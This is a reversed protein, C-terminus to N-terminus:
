PASSITLRFRGDTVNFGPGSCTFSGYVETATTSVFISGSTAGVNTESEPSYVATRNTFVAAEPIVYRFTGPQANPVRFVLGRPFSGGGSTLLASVTLNINSATVVAQFINDSAANASARFNVENIKAGVSNESLEFPFPVILAQSARFLVKDLRSKTSDYLAAIKAITGAAKLRAATPALKHYQASVATAEDSPPMEAFLTIVFNYETKFVVLLNSAVGTLAPTYSPNRRLIRNLSFLTQGDGLASRSCVAAARNLSRWRARDERAPSPLVSLTTIDNTIQSQVALFQATTFARSLVASLSFALGCLLLLSMRRAKFGSTTDWKM